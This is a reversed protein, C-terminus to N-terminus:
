VVTTSFTITKKGKSITSGFIIWKDCHNIITEDFVTEGEDNDKEFM